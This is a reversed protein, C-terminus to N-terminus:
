TVVGVPVAVVVPGPVVMRSNAAAFRGATGVVGVVDANIGSTTSLSSPWFETMPGHARANSEAPFRHDFLALGGNVTISYVLALRAVVPAGNGFVMMLGALWPSIGVNSAGFPKHKSASPSRAM